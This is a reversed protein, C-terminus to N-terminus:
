RDERHHRLLNDVREGAAVGPDAAFVLAPTFKIRVQRGIAAQMRWRHEELSAAVEDPLSALYVRAHRLDRTTEVATVTVLLLREDVDVLKELEEAIVEHLLANVRATRPYRAQDGHRRSNHAM